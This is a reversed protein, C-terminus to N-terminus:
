DAKYVVTIMWDAYSNNIKRIEALIRQKFTTEVIHNQGPWIRFKVRLYKWSEKGSEFIGMNEPLSLIISRYQNYMGLCIIQIAKEFEKEDTNDPIQIDAYARIVGRRYRNIIVINRNPIYIKQGLINVLVTFRLGVSDVKGIQGSMEVVEGLNLADSFIMTLGIIVDQVFGQLGFGIALGLITASALYTTLSVNFQQLIFGIALFYISFTVASVFITLLSAARPFRKTFEIKQKEEKGVKYTLL